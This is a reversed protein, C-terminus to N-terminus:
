RAKRESNTLLIRKEVHNRLIRNEELLYEIRHLLSQEIEGTVYALMKKWPMNKKRESDIETPLLSHWFGWNELFNVCILKKSRALKM